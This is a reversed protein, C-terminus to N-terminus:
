SLELMICVHTSHGWSLALMITIANCVDKSHRMITSAHHICTHLPGLITSAHHMYTLLPELIISAVHMCPTSHDMYSLLMICVRSPTGGSYLISSTHHMCQTSHGQITCSQKIYYFNSYFFDFM